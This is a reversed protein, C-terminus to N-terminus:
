KMLNIYAELNAKEPAEPEMELYMKYSEIALSGQGLKRYVDGIKRHVDAEDQKLKMARKYLDLALDDNNRKTSLDALGVIADYSRPNLKQARKFLNEAEVYEEKKAHIQAMFVLDADTEGNEKMDDQIKKMAGDLDNAEMDIKAVYFLVQPYTPLKDQVRKFWKAAEVFKKDEFLVKGATMMSELDGPEIALLKEVLGPVEAYREDMMAAKILFEYLSKDSSHLKELKARVEQYDKVKGARFYFIAIESMIKPNEGFEEQLSLLYGIAAQDDQTEYILQAYAIRYDPNIPDLEICKNIMIRASDFNGKKQLIKAMLFIDEDNLPNMNISNKLWMMAQLPDGMKMHLKANVSAYEWTDRYESASIIQIRNKAENFKYSDVLADVYALNISKDDPYKNALSHLTDLAQKALGLRLQVKALFLDSPIHGPSADSAKAATSMALEYNHKDYFDKAVLLLKYAKSERILKDTETNGEESEQLDALTMRLEESDQLKLSQGLYGTAEKQKGEIAYVLGKLELYKARNINNYELNLADSKKILPIVEKVKRQTILLQAKELLFYVNKPNKKIAEDLLTMAEEREQNLLLYDIMAAYTYRNKDPAKTLATYFQKALDLKGQRILSMLYVAFLDQTVNKPSLKLYKQIVDVAADNKNIAVYFLNLGIVGNPDQMLLSRKTQIINFLTQADGTKDSSYKLEEAYTRVLYNLSTLNDLDNEYSAKFSLGAKVLAPYTGQNFLQIARNFEVKGKQPDAQDFPIPFVIKPEINQFPPKKPKEEPFLVVYAIALAAAIIILKKKKAKSAAAEEEEDDEESGEAERAEKEEKARKKQVAKLEEEIELEQEYAEDMLGTKDLRVMQTSDDSSVPATDQAIILALKKADEEEKLREAEEAAKQDEAQKQARRMRDIEQQAVPNIITKNYSENEKEHIEDDLTPSDLEFGTESVTVQTPEKVPAPEPKSEPKKDELEELTRKSESPAMRVTETLQEVPALTGHDLEEIEKEQKQNRLKTLDIIFTDEKPATEKQPVKTKNDDFLEAWFEAHEIPGWNGTPFVQAEEGGKIHGKAKLEFLQSKEFPGIVRGNSLRIRYKTM